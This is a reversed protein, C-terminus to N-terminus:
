EVQNWPSWSSCKAITTRENNYIYSIHMGIRRCEENRKDDPDMQFLRFIMHFWFSSQVQLKLDYLRPDRVREKFTEIIFVNRFSPYGQDSIRSTNSAARSLYRTTSSIESYLRTFTHTVSKTNLVTDAIHEEIYVFIDKDITHAENIFIMQLWLHIMSITQSSM